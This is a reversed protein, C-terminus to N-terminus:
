FGLNIGVLFTKALPPTYFDVGLVYNGQGFAATNVEPDYGDYNTITALNQAQVYLRATQLFGLKAVSSPLTYGFTVNKVRLFSGKTVWRSSAQTGNADGFRAQPVDTIDGPNQWRDLQDITQNDFYDGNVSQYIGASNYIDNGYVFQGLVSLDFGKFSFTNTIGGTYDPNPNGVVQLPSETIDNTTSGDEAYYLADGNAPDVGAYKRGWFVGIPEGERVSALQGSQIPATLETIENRNFSINFNTNWKFEKDFNRTNLSIELGRNELKGVNETVTSYGNVYLLQRGLLLDDTNKQYVDIEGSIRNDLFGFELGIDTQATSEWSLDPNGVVTSPRIGAQDAYPLATFLGRSLFNGIEANGTLGYSARLKLFNVISNDQLFGEESIVWGVSGAGFTGYQNNAGFRSSGDRRVSGSLLYKGQYAYNVRGFFSVFSFEDRSSSSGGTKIAASAIRTFEDNPFGRGEASTQKLDSRQFSFGALAEITNAENLTLLYNATNNTTYNLVQTQSSFGEGTNGGSSTGAPAYIDENLNLFDAGAETRITLNKIPNFSLYANSFSRYTGARNTVRSIDVLNNTYLTRQNLEGTEPDIKPQLPPLANLQVPNTFANDNPIRDNVSRTLSLNLGVKVKETISHDLNIRASGRRFRNGIIVGTQDNYTTSLYFRTKADGGSVNADYQSVKGTRFAEESWNQDVDTNLDMGFDAFVAELDEQETIGINGLSETFLEKYQAANLFKQRRTTESTGVYYGVNVKTQGQRGSKTTVLVVGNSARSGYIAASAADKLITISEIDNPNLDALPNLPEVDTGVDQSTVPIGDIVYLPQNSATVSSAGRVRIQVGAGLKGSTQNITVGPTRGQIAQEFSVVPVNEVDKSSLQTVSGTVESKSQSGYGVVVAENLVTENTALRVNIESQNGISITQTNYGISSVVLFANPQVTLSFAGDASTSVGNTTGRELVTVGPLGSGDADTVRGTVTRTQAWATTVLLLCWVLSLLFKQKM